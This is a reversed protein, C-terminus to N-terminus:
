WLGISFLHHHGLPQTKVTICSLASVSHIKFACRALNIRTYGPDQTRTQSTLKTKDLDKLVQLSYGALCRQGHSKELCSYQLPNGHRGGPFRGSGPISGFRKDGANTPLNKEVLAVQSAVGYRVYYLSGLINASHFFLM